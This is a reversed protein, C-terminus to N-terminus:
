REQCREDGIGFNGFTHLPVEERYGDELIFYYKPNDSYDDPYELKAIKSCKMETGTCSFLIFPIAILLLLRM